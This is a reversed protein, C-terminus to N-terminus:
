FYCSNTLDHLFSKVIEISGIVATAVEVNKSLVSLHNNKYLVHKISFNWSKDFLYFRYNQKKYNQKKDKAPVGKQQGCTVWSISSIFRM